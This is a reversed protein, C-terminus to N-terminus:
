RLKSWDIQRGLKSWDIQRGSGGGFGLVERLYRDRRWRFDEAAQEEREAAKEADTITEKNEDAM